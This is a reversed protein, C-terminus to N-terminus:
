FLFKYFYLSHYMSHISISNFIVKNFLFHKNVKLNIKAKINYQDTINIEKVFHRGNDRRIYRPYGDINTDTHTSFAKPFEKSCKGEVMCVCAPNYHGCPGHIMNKIVIDYLRKMKPDNPDPLEASILEDIHDILYM